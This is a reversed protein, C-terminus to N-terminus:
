RLQKPTAPRAREMSLSGLSLPTRPAHGPKISDRRQPTGTRRRGRQTMASIRATVAPPQPPAAEWLPPRDDEDADAEADADVVVAVVEAAGVTALMQVARPSAAMSRNTGVADIAV